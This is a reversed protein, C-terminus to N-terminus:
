HRGRAGNPSDPKRRDLWRYPPLLVGMTVPRERAMRVFLFFGLGGFVINPMWMGLLPPYAGTEGFVSGASLLLYYLLFFVLGMGLGGSKGAQRTQLGLPVALVGLVLCAFPMSFKRHLEMRMENYRADRKVPKRVQQWLEALYMEKEDKRGKGTKSVANKLDLRVDYADFHVANASRRQPEVQYIAGNFLRLRFIAEAADSFVRGTPAIVTRAANESSGSDEILIDHLTGDTKDIHGIYLLVGSFRDIFQRETIGINLNATAVKVTLAKVSTQGWPLGWLTMVMTLLGGALSFVLVPPLMRYLSTGASKLALIENDGSLRLFTLLVAMMTSMPVVFVMFYPISYVFLLLVHVLRIHYNVILNTIDLIRAMLFVFTFFFLSIVFPAAMERFLYRDIITNMRM